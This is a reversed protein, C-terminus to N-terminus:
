RTILLDTVGHVGDWFALGLETLVIRPQSGFGDVKTSETPGLTLDLGVITELRRVFSVLNSLDSPLLEKTRELVIEAVVLEGTHVHVVFAVLALWGMRSVMVLGTTVSLDALLTSM